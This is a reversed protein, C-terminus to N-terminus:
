PDADDGIVPLVITQETADLQGTSRQGDHERSHTSPSPEAAAPYMAAMVRLCCDPCLREPMPPRLESVDEVPLGCRAERPHDPDVVHVRGAYFTSGPPNTGWWWGPLPLGQGGSM